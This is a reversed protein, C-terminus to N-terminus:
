MQGAFWRMEEAIGAALTPQHLEEPLVGWAYTEVEFHTADSHRAVAALTDLIDAQSTQLHGFSRL